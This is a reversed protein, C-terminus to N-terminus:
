ADDTMAYEITQELPTGRGEVWAAHLAPEELAARVSAVNRDYEGRDSPGLPAGIAERLAEAAGFLRAARAFVRRACAIGALRELCDAIGRKDGLERRLALSERWLAAAREHDGQKHAVVGLNSLSAAVGRRDGLGRRIRLGEQLLTRAGDFDGEAAAVLGLSNLSYSVGLTDGLARRMRLSEEHFPRAARYDGQEVAVLGLNNLLMAMRWKDELDRALALGEEYRPRAAAYDGQAAAVLGLINLADAVGQRNKLERFIGLSEESLAIAATYDSQNWALRSAELLARARLAAQVGGSSGLMRDLWRRGEIFHGRTLWFRGLAGALRLGSEGGDKETQTSALATRLNDHDAELRELGVVQAPGILEPETREALTLFWNRHRRQVKADEGSEALKGHAYQRVTELLRYRATGDREHVVVLSRDVLQSLLDLVDADDIGEGGCVAEAADLTWGGSFASLRRLLTKEKESLLVYSWDMAAQLTQQRPMATRSGGTLLRFQDDLRAAIQDVPLTKVRTAALEIALPIGELRDCVDAVAPANQDTLRFSPLAAGARDIFLRVAEYEALDKLAPLRMLDPLSLSPVRWNTEGAIRLPERSTALIQLRPCARLLAEAMRACAEVVHECSDLVLLISKPQLYDILTVLLGRGPEERMRLASAVAQPVLASDSLPALDVFWVGDAFAEVLDAGVQLALRTKGCGGSGTLTLLRTTSLLRKVQTMEHERGIFSTLQRPLNNPLNELSRLPPFEAPLDAHLLHFIREPRQLDKLRHEGLDKISAGTPLDYEVIGATTRSLLIQGGWGAACIRQARHLGMGVYAGAHIAVEATDLGMRVRLAAGEPWAHGTIVRQASLAARVAARAREFAILFGDGPAEVEQGGEAEFIPRLIRRYDALVQGYPGDGLRQLLQTSGEIDTFLVTITGTPLATM